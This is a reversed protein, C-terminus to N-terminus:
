KKRIWRIAFGPYISSIDSTSTDANEFWLNIHPVVRLKLKIQATSGIIETDEPIQMSILSFM